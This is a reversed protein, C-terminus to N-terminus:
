IQIADLNFDICGIQHLIKRLNTAFHINDCKVSKQIGNIAFQEFTNSAAMYNVLILHLMTAQM